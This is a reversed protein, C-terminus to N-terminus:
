GRLQRRRVMALGLIGAGLLAMTGPEPVATISSLTFTGNDSDGSTQGSSISLYNTDIDNLVIRSPQAVPAQYYINIMTGDNLTFSIGGGDLHPDTGFVNNSNDEFDGPALLGMNMINIGEFSGDILSAVGADVTITGMGTVLPTIAQAIGESICEGCGEGQQPTGTYTWDYVTAHAPAALGLGLMLASFVSLVRM